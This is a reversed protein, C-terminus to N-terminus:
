VFNKIHKTMKKYLIVDIYFYQFFDSYLIIEVIKNKWKNQFYKVINKGSYFFFICFFNDNLEIPFLYILIIM